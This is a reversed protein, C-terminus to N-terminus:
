LQNSKRGFCLPPGPARGRFFIENLTASVGNKLESHESLPIVLFWLITFVDGKCQSRLLLLLTQLHFMLDTFWLIIVTFNWTCAHHTHTNTHTHTLTLSAQKCCISHVHLYIDKLFHNFYTCSFIQTNPLSCTALQLQQLDLCLGVSAPFLKGHAGFDLEYFAAPESLDGCSCLGAIIGRAARRAMSLFEWWSISPEKWFDTGWRQWFGTQPQFDRSRHPLRSPCFLQQVQGSVSPLFRMPTSRWCAPFLSNVIGEEAPRPCWVACFFGSVWMWTTILWAQNDAAQGEIAQEKSFHLALVNVQCISYRDIQEDGLKPLNRPDFVSFSDVLEMEPFRTGLDCNDM